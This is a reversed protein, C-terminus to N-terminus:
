EQSCCDLFMCFWCIKVQISFVLMKRQYNIKVFSIAYSIQKICALSVKAQIIWVRFLPSALKRIFSTRVLKLIITVTLISRIGLEWVRTFICETVYFIPTCKIFNRTWKVSITECVCIIGSERVSLSNKKQYIVRVSLSYLINSTCVIYAYVCLIVDLFAILNSLLISRRLFPITWMFLISGSSLSFDAYFDGYWLIFFMLFAVFIFVIM